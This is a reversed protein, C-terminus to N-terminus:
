QAEVRALELDAVRDLHEAAEGPTMSGDLVAGLTRPVFLEAYFVSILDGHGQVFGWRDIDVLGAVLLDITGQGYLDELRARRDVGMELQKWGDVFVGPAEPTGHRMPFKGEASTSLWSLYGENFWYRLFAQAAPINSGAGIGMYSIQGYQAPSGHPGRFSSVFGSNKALYAPDDRCEPCGPMVDDRLGAMEDLLFPSWVVMGATGSLYAARTSVADQVGGLGYQSALRTYVEIAEVCNESGVLVNGVRDVLDCGNALAFHEFTQQTFVADPDTALAIGAFGSAPDTLTSAATEIAEYTDPVALGERDFLDRRYVLLQGWGDSPVAATFGAVSVLDLAGAAFTDRGLAEVVADSAATDLFGRRAWGITFDVPHFAVEPLRDEAAAAEITEPLADESVYVRIVDIGTAQSFGDIIENTVSVREPQTETSWFSIAGDPIEPLVVGSSPAATVTVTVTVAPVGAQDVCAAAMCAIAVFVPVLSRSM